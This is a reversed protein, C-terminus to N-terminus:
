NLGYMDFNCTARMHISLLATTTIRSLSLRFNDWAFANQNIPYDEQFDKNAFDGKTALSFSEILTWASGDSSNFNCYVEYLAKTTQEFLQYVGSQSGENRQLQEKCSAVKRKQCYRGYYGIACTCNFKNKADKCLETCTGGNACQNQNCCQNSCPKILIISQEEFGLLYFSMAPHHFEFRFFSIYVFLRLWATAVCSFIDM